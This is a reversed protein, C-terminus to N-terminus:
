AHTPPPAPAPVAVLPNRSTSTKLVHALAEDATEFGPGDVEIGIIKGTNKELVQVTFKPM